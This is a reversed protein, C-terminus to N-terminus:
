KKNWPASRVADRYIATLRKIDVKKNLHEKCTYKLETNVAVAPATIGFIMKYLWHRSLKNPDTPCYYCKSLDIIHMFYCMTKAREIKSSLQTLYVNHRYCKDCWTTGDETFIAKNQERCKHCVLM